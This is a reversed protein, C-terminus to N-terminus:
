TLVRKRLLEFENLFEQDHTYETGDIRDILFPGRVSNTAFVAEAALLQDISAEVIECDISELVKRRMVGALVQPGAPPTFFKKDKVFFINAISTELVKDHPTLFLLDDDGEQLFLKQALITELYNGAKLYEPWWAPKPAAQCTRLSFSKHTTSPASLKVDIMLEQVSVPSRQKLGREGMLFVTLRLVGDGTGSFLEKQLRRELVMEWDIGESFPGFVFSVGKKLREFHYNWEQLYGSAVRMTTFVSEGYMFARNISESM